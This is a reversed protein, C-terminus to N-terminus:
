RQKQYIHTGASENGCLRIRLRSSPDVHARLHASACLPSQPHSRNARTATGGHVVRGTAEGTGVGPRSCGRARGATLRSENLSLFIGRWPRRHRSALEGSPAVRGPGDQGQRRSQGPPIGGPCASGAASRRRRSQRDPRDAPVRHGPRSGGVLLGVHRTAPFAQRRRQGPTFAAWERLSCIGLTAVVATAEPRRQKEDRVLAKVFDDSVSHGCGSDRGDDRVHTSRRQGDDPGSSITAKVEMAKESYADSAHRTRYRTSSHVRPSTFTARGRQVALSSSTIVGTTSVSGRNAAAASVIGKLSGPSTIIGDSQRSGCSRCHVQLTDLGGSGGVADRLVPQGEPM